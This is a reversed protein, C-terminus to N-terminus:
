EGNTRNVPSFYRTCSKERCDAVCVRPLRLEVAYMKYLASDTSGLKRGTFLRVRESRSGLGANTRALWHKTIGTGFSPWDKRLEM